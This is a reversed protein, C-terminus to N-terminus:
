RSEIQIDLVKQGEAISFIMLALLRGYEVVATIYLLKDPQNYEVDM